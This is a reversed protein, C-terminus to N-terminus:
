QIKKPKGSSATHKFNTKSTTENKRNETQLKGNRPRNRPRELATKSRSKTWFRIWFPVWTSFPPTPRPLSIKTLRHEAANKLFCPKRRSTQRSKCIFPRVRNEFTLTKRSVDPSKPSFRASCPCALHGSERSFVIIKLSFVSGRDAAFAPGPM